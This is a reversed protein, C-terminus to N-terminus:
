VEVTKLDGIQLDKLLPFEWIDGVDYKIKYVTNLTNSKAQTIQLVTGQYWVPTPDGEECCNHDVRKGVLKEPNELFETLTNKQLMRERKQRAAALKQSLKQKEESLRKKVKDESRYKLAPELQNDEEVGEVVQNEKLVELM